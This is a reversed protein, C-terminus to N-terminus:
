KKIAMRFSNYFDRKQREEEREERERHERHKRHNKKLDNLSAINRYERCNEEDWGCYLWM